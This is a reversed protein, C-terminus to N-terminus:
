KKAVYITAINFTLGKFQASQFGNATLIDTFAKGFPFHCVSEPLYTYAAADKSFFKGVTPMFTNSYFRYFAKVIPNTPQSFELVVLQGGPKLVRHISQLGKDLNEFNRVGFSVTVADFTNDEFPLQESDALQLTIKKDLGRKKIKAKGLELMGASIDVGIIQTPKLKLAEIALDGTGTAIDLILKPHAAKLCAITRKRWYIHIGFSLLGNLFDYKHAIADFMNAVQKKKSEATNYPTVIEKM